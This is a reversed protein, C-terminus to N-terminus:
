LKLELDAEFHYLVGMQGQHKETKASYLVHLDHPFKQRSVNVTWPTQCVFNSTTTSVGQSCTTRQITKITNTKGGAAESSELTQGFPGERCIGGPLVLHSKELPWVWPSKLAVLEVEGKCSM